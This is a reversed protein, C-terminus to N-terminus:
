GTGTGAVRVVPVVAGDAAPVLTAAVGLTAGAVDGAAREIAAADTAALVGGALLAARTTLVEVRALTDGAAAARVVLLVAGRRPTASGTFYRVWLAVRTMVTVAVERLRVVARSCAQCLAGPPPQSFDPVAIVACM